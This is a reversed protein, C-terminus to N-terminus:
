FLELGPNFICLKSSKTPINQQFARSFSWIHHIKNYIRKLKSWLKKYSDKWKLEDNLTLLVNRLDLSLSLLILFFFSISLCLMLNTLNIVNKRGDINLTHLKWLAWKYTTAQQSNYDPNHTMLSQRDISISFMSAIEM